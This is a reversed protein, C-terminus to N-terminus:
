YTHGELAAIAADPQAYRKFHDYNYDLTAAGGVFGLRGKYTEQSRTCTWVGSMAEGYTEDVHGSSAHDPAVNMDYDISYTRGAKDVTLLGDGHQNDRVLSTFKIAQEDRKCDACAADEFHYDDVYRPDIPRKFFGRGAALEDNTHQEQKRISADGDTQGNTTATYYKTRVYEGDRMLIGVENTVEKNMPGVRMSFTLHRTFAFNGRTQLAYDAVAKRVIPPPEDAAVARGRAAFALSLLGGALATCTIGAIGRRVAVVSSQRDRGM